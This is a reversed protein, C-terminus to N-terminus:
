QMPLHGAASSSGIRFPDSECSKIACRMACKTPFPSNRHLTRCLTRDLPGSFLKESFRQGPTPSGVHAPVAQAFVKIWDCNPYDDGDIAFKLTWLTAYISMPCSEQTGSTKDLSARGTPAADAKRPGPRQGSGDTTRSNARVSCGRQAHVVGGGCEEARRSWARCM